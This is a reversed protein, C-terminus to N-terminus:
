SAVAPRALQEIANALCRPLRAALLGADIARAVAPDWPVVTIPVVGLVDAVDRLGLSRGPETVLLVHDARRAAVARRLALYCNRVVLLREADPVEVNDTGADIVVHWGRERLEGLAISGAVVAATSNTTAIDLGDLVTVRRTVAEAPTRHATAPPHGLIPLADRATDVLVTMKQRALTLALATAITTTGQGGKAGSCVILRGAEHPTTM